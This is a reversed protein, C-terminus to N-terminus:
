TTGPSPPVHLGQREARVAALTRTPVELKHLVHEVHTAVTRTAVGLRRAIQQNSDGEVLLGLVELERPTLGHRDAHPRLLMTGLVLAPSDHTRMVTVCLHSTATPAEAAPWLFSRHRLGALLTQRALEVLPSGVRLLPHEDLGPLRVCRGDRLLVAGATAGDALGNTGSLSPLPSVARAMLPTLQRVCDRVGPSPSEGDAFLLSLLGVSPGDPEALPAELRVGSRARVLCDVAVPGEGRPLTAARGTLPLDQALGAVQAGRAVPPPLVHRLVASDLGASEITAHARRDPGSLTLRIADVDLWDDLCAVLSRARDLLPVSAAAMELIAAVPPEDRM